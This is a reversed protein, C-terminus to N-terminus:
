SDARWQEEVIFVELVAFLALRVGRPADELIETTSLLPRPRLSPFQLPPLGLALAGRSEGM